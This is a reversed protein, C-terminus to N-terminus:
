RRLMAGEFDAGTLKAGKMSAGSLQAFSLKADKLNAKTFRTSYLQAENFDSKELRANRFTAGELRTKVFKARKLDPRSDFNKGQLSQDSFNRITSGGQKIWLELTKPMEKMKKRREIETAWCSFATKLPRGKNLLLGWFRELMMGRMTGAANQMMQVQGIAKMLDGKHAKIAIFEEFSIEGDGDVDAENIMEQIKGEDFDNGMVAKLINRLEKPSINGSGDEDFRNFLERLDEESDTFKMKRVMVKAFAPFRVVMVGHVDKEANLDQMLLEMEKKNPTENASVLGFKKMAEGLEDIDLSGTRDEDLSDFIEKLQKIKEEYKDFRQFARDIQEEQERATKGDGGDSSTIRRMMATAFESFSIFGSGDEDYSEMMHQLEADTCELGFLEMMTALDDRSLEGLGDGESSDLSDFAIKLVNLRHFAAELVKPSSDLLRQAIFQTFTCFDIGEEVTTNGDEIKTVEVKRLGLWLERLTDESVSQGLMELGYQLEKKDLSGGGDKDLAAYAVRLTQARECAAELKSSPKKDHKDTEGRLKWAMLHTFGRFDIREDPRMGLRRMLAVHEAAPRYYADAAKVFSGRTVSMVGLETLASQTFELQGSGLANSLKENKLAVFYRRKEDEAAGRETPDESTLRKELKQLLGDLAEDRTWYCGLLNDIPRYFADGAKIFNDRVVSTGLASLESPTFELKGSELAVSLKANRLEVGDKPKKEEQLWSSGISNDSPLPGILDLAVQLENAGVERSGDAKLARFLKELASRQGENLAKRAASVDDGFKLAGNATKAVPPPKSAVKSAQSTAVARSCGPPHLMALPVVSTYEDAEQLVNELVGGGSNTPM